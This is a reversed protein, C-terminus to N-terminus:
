NGSKKTVKETGFHEWVLICSRGLALGWLPTHEPLLAKVIAKDIKGCISQLALKFNKNM